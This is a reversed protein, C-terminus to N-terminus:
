TNLTFVEFFYEQVIPKENKQVKVLFVQIKVPFNKAPNDFSSKVHGSFCKRLLM